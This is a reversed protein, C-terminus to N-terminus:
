PCLVDAMLAASPIEIMIGLEVAPGNLEARVEEVMARAARWETIDAVMPFMIRLKGLEAARLIARLQERLLEPRNLCLRIGREGLFPNDEPPVEIYPLPKDGGIDLTRVIVPQGHMAQAIDRYVTFQEEETPAEARELFLFETRLLGVGEAGSRCRQKRRRGPRWHQRRNRRPARRPHHGTRRRKHAATTASSSALQDSPKSPSPLSGHKDPDITLLGVAATSSSWHAM